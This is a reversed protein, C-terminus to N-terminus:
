VLIREIAIRNDIDRSMLTVDTVDSFLNNGTVSKDTNIHRSGLISLRPRLQDPCRRDIRDRWDTFLDSLRHCRSKLALRNLRVFQRWFEYRLRVHKVVVVVVVVNVRKSGENM